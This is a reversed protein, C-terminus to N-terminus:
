NFEPDSQVEGTSRVFVVRPLIAEKVRGENDRWSLKEKTEEDIVSKFRETAMQLYIVLEALGHDLPRSRVLEQLTVQSKSQLSKRIHRAIENRDIASQNYLEAADVNNGDGEEILSHVRPKHKPSYLKREMPLDIALGPSDIAFFDGEPPLARLALARTEINRLIDMIRRNELWAADDLFRKLQQSLQAVTRQTTEGAELWDYHVRRLRSDPKLNAVAPLSLVDELLDTLEDQRQSSMLFDWFARFSRGQDSDTIADREGMIEAILEGKGGNFTAIQERVTRDLNRFNQDVERFDALLERAVAVFQQFRDRIATEDLLNMDGEKLREMEAEIQTRKRELDALRVIADTESGEKIQKLLQFLTLLRSETGVFTRETLSKVWTIAKESAPTLDFHPEDSGHPYFKRLWGKDPNTWNDLYELASKHFEKDERVERLSFLEDELKASLESQSLVRVNPEVFVRNLFSIVLAAHKARLLRWASNHQKLYDLTAYDM